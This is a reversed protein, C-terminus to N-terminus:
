LVRFLVALLYDPLLLLDLQFNFSTLQVFLIEISFDESTTFM